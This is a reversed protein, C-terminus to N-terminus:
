SDDKPAYRSHLMLSNGDPDKFHAMHCVGSDITDMVFEIGHAELTMRAEAVDEVHLAITGSSPQYDQGMRAPEWFALTLTGTEVEGWPMRQGDHPRVSVDLGLVREYWDVAHPVSTVNVIVFDTGTVNISETAATM